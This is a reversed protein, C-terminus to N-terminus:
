MHPGHHAWFHVWHAKTELLPESEFQLAMYASIGAKLLRNATEGGLKIADVGIKGGVNHLDHVRDLRTLRSGGRVVVRPHRFSRELYKSGYNQITCELVSVEVNVSVSVLVLAPVVAYSSSLAWPPPEPFGAV